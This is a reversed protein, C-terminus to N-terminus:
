NGSLIREIQATTYGVFRLETERAKRTAIGHVLERAQKIEAASFDDAPFDDTSTERIGDEGIIDRMFADLKTRDDDSFLFDLEERAQRMAQRRVDAPDSPPLWYKGGSEVVEGRAIREDIDDTYAVEVPETKERVLDIFRTQLRAVRIDTRLDRPEKPKTTAHPTPEIGPVKVAEGTPGIRFFAPEGTDPDVGAQLRPTPPRVSTQRSIMSQLVAAIPRAAEVDGVATLDRLMGQFQEVGLEGAALHKQMIAQRQAAVQRNQERGQLAQLQALGAQAAAQGAPIAVGLAQGLSIPDRSPGSSRLLSSGAGFLGQQLMASREEDSLLGQPEGGEFMAMLGQPQELRRRGDAIRDFLSPARFRPEILSTPIPAMNLFRLDFPATM